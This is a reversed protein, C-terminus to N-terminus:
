VASPDAPLDPAIAYLRTAIRDALITMLRERADMAASQTAVTSGTASYGTFSSVEGSTIVDGTAVATLTFMAAGTVNIRTAINSDTIAMREEDVRLTLDLFYDPNGSRGFLTELHSVVDYADGDRPAEIQMRNVLRTAGGQPAYAPTFGCAALGGVSAGAAALLTLFRRRDSLSM